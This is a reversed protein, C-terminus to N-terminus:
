ECVETLILRSITNESMRAKSRPKQRKIVSFCAAPIDAFFYAGIGYGAKNQTVLSINRSRHFISQQSVKLCKFAVNFKSQFVRFTFGQM